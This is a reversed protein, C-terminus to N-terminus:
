VLPSVTLSKSRSFVGLLQTVTRIRNILEEVVEDYEGKQKWFYVEPREQKEPDPLQLMFNVPKIYIWKAKLPTTTGAGATDYMTLNYGYEKAALVKYLELGMKNQEIAM